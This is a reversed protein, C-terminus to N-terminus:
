LLTTGWYVLLLGILCLQIGLTFKVFAELIKQIAELSGVDFDRVSDKRAGGETDPKYWKSWAELLSIVLGGVLLVLGVIVLATGM